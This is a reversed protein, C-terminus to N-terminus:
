TNKLNDNELGIQKFLKWVAIVFFALQDGTEGYKNFSMKHKEIQVGIIYQFLLVEIHFLNLLINKTKISRRGGLSIELKDDNVPVYACFTVNARDPHVSSSFSKYFNKKLENLSDFFGDYIEFGKKKEKLNQLIKKASKSTASFKISKNSEEGNERVPKTYFQYLENDGLIALMLEFLELHNRLIIIAQHDFGKSILFHLVQLNNQTLTLINVYDFFLTHLANSKESEKFNFKEHICLWLINNRYHILKLFNLENVLNDDITTFNFNESSDIFDKIIADIDLEPLGKLREEEYIKLLAEKM